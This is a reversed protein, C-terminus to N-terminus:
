KQEVLFMQDDKGKLIYGSPTKVISYKMSERDILQTKGEAQLSISSPLLCLSDGIFRWNIPSDKIIRDGRKTRFTAAGDKYFLFLLHLDNGANSTDGEEGILFTKNSLDIVKTALESNAVKQALALFPISLLLALLCVTKRASM